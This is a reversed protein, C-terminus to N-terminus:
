QAPERPTVPRWGAKWKALFETWSIREPLEAYAVGQSVALLDFRFHWEEDFIIFARMARNEIELDTVRDMVNTLQEKVVGYDTPQSVKPLVDLAITKAQEAVDARYRAERNKVSNSINRGLPGLIKAAGESTEVIRTVVLWIVIVATVVTLWNHGLSGALKLLDNM